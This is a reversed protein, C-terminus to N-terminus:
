GPFSTSASGDTAAAGRESVFGCAETLGYAPVAMEELEGRPIGVREAAATLAKDIVKQVSPLKVRM